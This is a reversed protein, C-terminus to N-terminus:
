LSCYVIKKPSVPWTFNQPFGESGPLDRLMQRYTLWEAPVELGTEIARIVIWDSNELLLDRESRINKELEELKPPPPDILTPRGNEDLIINKGFSLGTKLFDYEKDTIEISDEPINNGNLTQNYFGNRSISYLMYNGM